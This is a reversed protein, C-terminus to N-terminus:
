NNKNNSKNDAVVDSKYSAMMLVVEKIDFKENVMEIYFDERFIPSYYTACLNGNEDKITGNIGFTDFKATGITNDTADLIDYKEGFLEVKGSMVLRAEDNIIITHNDQTILNYDDDAYGIESGSNDYMTLPDTLFRVVNGSVKYIRDNNKYVEIETNFNFIKYNCFYTNETETVKGCGAMTFILSM